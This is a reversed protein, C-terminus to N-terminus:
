YGLTLCYFQFFIDTKKLVFCWLFFGSNVRCVQWALYSIPIFLNLKFFFCLFFVSTLDNFFYQVFFSSDVRFIKIVECRPYGWLFFVFFDCFELVLLKNGFSSLSFFNLKMFFINLFFNYDVQTLEVLGNGSIHSWSLGVFFISCIM